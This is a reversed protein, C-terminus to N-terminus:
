EHTYKEANLIDNQLEASYDDSEYRFISVSNKGLFKIFELKTFGALEAAQGLSLREDTYFKLAIARKAEAEFEKHTQRTSLVVNEPILINLSM